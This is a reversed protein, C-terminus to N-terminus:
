KLSETGSPFSGSIVLGKNTVVVEAVSNKYVWACHGKYKVLLDQLKQRTPFSNSEEVHIDISQKNVIRISFM